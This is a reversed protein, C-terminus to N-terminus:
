AVSPPGRLFGTSIRRVDGHPDYGTAVNQCFYERHLIKFYFEPLISGSFTFECSFCLDDSSHSHSVEAESYDYHHDCRTKEFEHSLHAMGHFSQFLLAFLVAIGALFNVIQRSKNM